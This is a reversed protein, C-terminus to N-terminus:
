PLQEPDKCAFVTIQKGNVILKSGAVDFDVRANIKGHASDFKLLHALVDVSVLDNIAVVELNKENLIRRFVLRGIRGFGNIAVKIM